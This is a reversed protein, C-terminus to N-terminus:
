RKPSRWIFTKPDLRVMIVGHGPVKSSFNGEFLGLNSQRWVDRVTQRGKLGLDEWDASISRPENTLNFLGVAWSGDELPKELIFEEDTKRVIVGQKGLSDQDIDIVESNCLVNLTFEDLKTMEGSFLLPAAMLSWLSMYSYQEEHTLATPRPALDASNADGVAGILIYDPDNWGGAGAYDSLVANAFGVKYFGPLSANRVSGLDGTTRWSNGGAQRGWKWVDGMGYQCMNLIIDRDLGELIAGMKKYPEQMDALTEGKAVKGFSCWDYKLLDFGWNSFQHADADEHQYSGEFGACTSPGPSTYIGAKLGLSHIYDALARMDPFRANSLIDGRSDRVPGNLAPNDSGPNRAWADDVDVYQYGYDAMGSTIMAAAATRIDRNTVHSYYAYWDNWGMQPTLGIQEGVVIKFHRSDKGLANSARLAVDYEGPKEPAKGSIIGSLRDLKLSAPLNRASYGMPRNGTCPIRYLFPNGPRVGYLKPGNLHPTQPPEPTRLDPAQEGSATSQGCEFAMLVIAFVLATRRGIQLMKFERNEPMSLVQDIRLMILRQLPESFDVGKSGRSIRYYFLSAASNVSRSGIELHYLAHNTLILEVGFGM